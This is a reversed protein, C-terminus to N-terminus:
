QPVWVREDDPVAHTVIQHPSLPHTTQMCTTRSKISGLLRWRCFRSCGDHFEGPALLPLASAGCSRRTTGLAGDRHTRPAVGITCPRGSPGPDVADSDM